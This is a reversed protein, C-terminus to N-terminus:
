AAAPERAPPPDGVRDFVTRFRVADIGSGQIDTLVYLMDGDPGLELSQTMRAGGTATEIVLVSGEFVATTQSGFGDGLPRGDTYLLRTERNTDRISFAPDRHDIALADLGEALKVLRQRPDQGPGAAGARARGGRRGFGRLTVGPVSPSVPPPAEEQVLALPDESELDNRVWTGTFNPVEEVAGGAPAHGLALLSALIAVGPKM